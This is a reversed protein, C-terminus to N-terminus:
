SLGRECLAREAARRNVLGPVRRGRVYVWRSLQACAARDEGKAVLAPIASRCYAGTNFDFSVFAALMGVRRALRPSCALVPRAHDLADKRLLAECEADGYRRAEVGGTHGFCVTRIRAMDLYPDNARGEWRAILPVALALAAALAAGAAHQARVAGGSAAMHKLWDRLRVIRERVAAQAVFKALFGAVGLILVARDRAPGHLVPLVGPLFQVLWGPLSATLGMLCLAAGWLWTSWHRVAESRLMKM